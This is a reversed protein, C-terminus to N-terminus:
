LFSFESFSLSTHLKSCCGSSESRRLLAYESPHGMTCIIQIVKLLIIKNESCAPYQKIEVISYKQLTGNYSKTEKSLM